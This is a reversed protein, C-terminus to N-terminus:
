AAASFYTQFGNAKIKHSEDANNLLLRVLGVEPIRSLLRLTLKERTLYLFIAGFILKCDSASPNFMGVKEM